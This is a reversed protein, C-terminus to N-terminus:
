EITRAATETGPQAMNLHVDEGAAVSESHMDRATANSPIPDRREHKRRASAMIVHDLQEDGAGVESGHVIVPLTARWIWRSRGDSGFGLTRCSSQM